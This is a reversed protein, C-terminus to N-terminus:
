FEKWKLGIVFSGTKRCRHARWYNWCHKVSRRRAIALYARGAASALMAVRVGAGYQELALPSQHDTTERIMM